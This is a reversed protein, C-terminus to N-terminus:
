GAGRGAPVSKEERMEAVVRHIDWTKVGLARSIDAKTIGLQLCRLIEERIDQPIQRRGPRPAPGTHDRITTVAVHYEAALAARSEGEAVRQRIGDWSEQPLRYWRKRRAVEGASWCDRVHQILVHGIEGVNLPDRVSRLRQHLRARGPPTAVSGGAFLNRVGASGLWSCCWAFSAPETGARRIWCAAELAKRDPRGGRTRSAEAVSLEILRKPLLLLPSCFPPPPPPAAHQLRQLVPTAVSM